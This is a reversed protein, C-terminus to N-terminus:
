PGTGVIFDAPSIIFDIGVVDGVFELVFTAAIIIIFGILGNTIKKQANQVAAKDGGASMWNYASTIILFLFWIAAIMTLVGLITGLVNELIDPAEIPSSRGEELGPYGIGELEGLETASQALKNMM